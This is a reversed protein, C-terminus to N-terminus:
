GVQSRSLNEGAEIIGDILLKKVVAIMLEKNEQPVEAWMVRSRQQTEWGHNPAYREYTTHFSRAIEEAQNEFSNTESEPM